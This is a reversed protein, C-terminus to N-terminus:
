RMRSRFTRWRRIELCHEIYNPKAGPVVSGALSTGGARYLGGHVLRPDATDAVLRQPADLMRHRVLMVEAPIRFYPGAGVIEEALVVERLRAVILPV